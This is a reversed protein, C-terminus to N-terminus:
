CGPQPTRGVMSAPEDATTECSPTPPQEEERAPLGSAALRHLAVVLAAAIWFFIGVKAGLAIADTTQFAFYALLGAGLGSALWRAHAGHSGCRCQVLLAALGLWLALYAILGPLGLDLAAQLLHNHAHAVDTDPAALFSPYLVPMVRRFTNMGMGTIPFDCVGAIARSWLELRSTVNEHVRTGVQRMVVEATARWTVGVVAAGAAIMALSVIRSRRGEWVAWAVLAAALALWAGRSQTLLVTGAIFVLLLAHVARTSRGFAPAFALAMQLPIFMVLAGAVANPHFGETQGPVGRILAPIREVVPRLAPVKAIWNTGLLGVGALLAGGLVFGHLVLEFDRWSRVFRVVGFFVGFGLLAGTIKPLSFEVDYTAYVSVIMMAALLALARNVPTVPLPAGEIRWVLLWLAPLVLLLPARSMSPFLFIPSILLVAM